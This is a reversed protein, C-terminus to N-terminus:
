KKSKGGHKQDTGARTRHFLSFRGSPPPPQRRRQMLWGAVLAIMALFLLDFDAQNAWESALFLIFTFTGILLFFTGIRAVLDDM